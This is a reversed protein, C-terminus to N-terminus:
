PMHIYSHKKRLLNLLKVNMKIIVYLILVDTWAGMHVPCTIELKLISRTYLAVTLLGVCYSWIDNQDFVPDESAFTSLYRILM